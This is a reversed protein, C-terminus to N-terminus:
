INPFSGNGENLALLLKSNLLEPTSYPAIYLTNNCASSIPLFDDINTNDDTGNYRIITMRPQLAGLGDIPLRPCGTVFELFKETKITGKQTLLNILQHILEDNKSYGMLDLNDLIEQPDKPFERGSVLSAIEETSYLDLYHFSMVQQFGDLFRQAAHKVQYNITEEEIFQKFQDFNSENVEEHNPINIEDYGPYSFEVGDCNKSLTKALIPDIENLTVNEGRVLAFFERSLPLNVQIDMSIAKATLIGMTYFQEPDTNPSPFLGLSRDHRFLSREPKSFEQSLLSFFTRTPAIGEGKEGDFKVNMPIRNKGFQNILLTGEEFIKEKSCHLKIASHSPYKVNAENPDKNISFLHKAATLPDLTLLKFVFSRLNLDFLHSHEYVFLLLPSCRGISNLPFQMANQVMTSLRESEFSFGYDYHLVDTLDFINKWQHFEYKKLHLQTNPEQEEQEISLLPPQTRNTSQSECFISLISDNSSYIRQQSRLQIKPYDELIGRYFVSLHSDTIHSTEKVDVYNRLSKDKDWIKIFNETNYKDLESNVLGEIVSVPAFLPVSLHLIDDHGPLAVQLIQNQQIIDLFQSASSNGSNPPLPADNVVRQVFDVLPTLDKSFQGKKLLELCRRSGNGDVFQAPSIRGQEASDIIQDLEMEEFDEDNLFVNTDENKKDRLFTLGQKYWKKLPNQISSEQEMLQEMIKSEYISKTGAFFSLVALVYPAYNSSFTFSSLMFLLKDTLQLSQAVLTTALALLTFPVALPRNVIADVLSPQVKKAFEESKDSRQHRPIGFPELVKATPLLPILFKMVKAQFSASTNVSLLNEVNVQQIISSANEPVKAITTLFELIQEQEALSKIENLYKCLEMIIDPELIVHEGAKYYIQIITQFLMSKLRGRERKALQLILHSCKILREEVYVKSIGLLIQIILEKQKEDHSDQILNIFKEYSIQRGIETIYKASLIRISQLASNIIGDNKDREIIKILLNIGGQSYVIPHYLESTELAAKLCQLGDLTNETNTSEIIMRILKRIRIKTEPTPLSKRIEIELNKLEKFEMCSINEILNLQVPTQNESFSHQGQTNLKAANSM